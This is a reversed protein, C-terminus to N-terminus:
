QHVVALEFGTPKLAMNFQIRRRASLCFGVPSCDRKGTERLWSVAATNRGPLVMTVRPLSGGSKGEGIM